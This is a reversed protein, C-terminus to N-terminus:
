KNEMLHRYVDYINKNGIKDIKVSINDNVSHHNIDKGNTITYSNGYDTPQIRHVIGVREWLDLFTDTELTITVFNTRGNLSKSVVYAPAVNIVLRPTIEDLALNVVDAGISKCIVYSDGGNFRRHFEKFRNAARSVFWKLPIGSWLFYHASYGYSDLYGSLCRVWKETSKRSIAGHVIFVKKM